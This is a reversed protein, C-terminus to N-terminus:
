NGLLLRDTTVGHLLVDARADGNVDLAVPLDSGDVGIPPGSAFGAPTGHWLQDRATGAAYWLLDTAGDGNFDGAVPRASTSLNVTVSTFRSPGGRWLRDPAAGPGYWLIDDRGDGDFDGVVPLYTGNVSVEPGSAFFDPGSAGRWVPDPAAGPAYWLIDDRGDGDFDGVVPLYSGNVTESPAVVFPRPGSSGRWLPDSRGGPRYWLIDTKGDGDFDGAIPTYSGTVTIPQRVFTADARGRWMTDAAPGPRYWLVDSKGDGNFDGAIPVGAGPPALAAGALFAPAGWADADIVDRDIVLPAGGHSEAVNGRYQKIRNRPWMRAPVAPDATTAVGDWRASWIDDPRAFSRDDYRAVLDKIGSLVSSYVGSRYGRAHLRRTWQDIFAMTLARCPADRPDYAELDFYIPAGAGIGLAAAAHIADDAATVGQAPSSILVHGSNVETECPSQRGVYTPILYWGAATAATVWAESLFTQNPCGRNVGGIYVNVVDYAPKWKALTALPPAQCIDFARGTVRASRAVAPPAATAVAAVPAVPSVPVASAIPVAPAVLGAALVAAVIAATRCRM